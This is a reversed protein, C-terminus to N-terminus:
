TRYNPAEVVMQVDHPHSEKLGAPTCLANYDTGDPEKAGGGILMILRGKWGLEGRLRRVETLEFCQLFCPAEKGAYGYRELIPLVVRSLDRGQERHGYAAPDVTAAVACDQGQTREGAADHQEGPGGNGVEDEEVRDPQHDATEAEHGDDDGREEFLPSAAHPGGDSAPVLDRVVPLSRASPVMWAGVGRTPSFEHRTEDGGLQDFRRECRSFPVAGFEAGAGALRHIM